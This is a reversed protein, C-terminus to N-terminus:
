FALGATAGFGRNTWSGLVYVHGYRLALAGGAVIDTETFATKRSDCFLQARRRFGVVPSLYLTFSSMRRVSGNRTSLTPFLYGVTCQTYRAHTPSIEYPSAGEPAHAFNSSYNVMAGCLVLQFDPMTNHGDFQSTYNQGNYTVDYAKTCNVGGGLGVTIIDDSWKWAGASLNALVCLMFILQKKM